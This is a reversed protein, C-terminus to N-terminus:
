LRSRGRRRGRGETAAQGLLAMTTQVQEEMTFKGVMSAVAKESMTKLLAADYALLSLASALAQPDGPTFLLGNVGHLLIEVTGGSRTGIVPRGSKLAEVSVRGFAENGSCVLIVNAWELERQPATTAERVQVVKQLGREIVQRVLRRRYPPNAPGVLRLQLDVPRVTSDTAQGGHSADTPKTSVLRAAELAIEMGKGPSLRCLV